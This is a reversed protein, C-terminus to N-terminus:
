LTSIREADRARPCPWCRAEADRVHHRSVARGLNNCLGDSTPDSRRLFGSVSRQEIDSQRSRTAKGEMHLFLRCAEDTEGEMPM